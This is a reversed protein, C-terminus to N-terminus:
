EHRCQRVRGYWWVDLWSGFLAVRKKSDFACTAEVFGTGDLVHTARKCWMCEIRGADYFRLWAKHYCAYAADWDERREALRGAYLHSEAEASKGRSRAKEALERMHVVVARRGDEHEPRTPKEEATRESFIWAVLGVTFAAAVVSIAIARMTEETRFSGGRVVGGPLVLSRVLSIPVPRGDITM